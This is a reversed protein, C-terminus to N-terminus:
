RGLVTGWMAQPSPPPDGLAPPPCPVVKRWPLSWHHCQGGGRSLAESGAARWRMWCEIKWLKWGPIDMAKQGSLISICDVADQNAQMKELAQKCDNMHKGMAKQFLGALHSKVSEALPLFSRPQGLKNSKIEELKTLHRRIHHVVSLCQGCTPRGHRQGWGTPLVRTSVDWKDKFSCRWSQWQDGFDSLNQRLYARTSKSFKGYEDIQGDNLGSCFVDVTLTPAASEFRSLLSTPPLEQFTHLGGAISPRHLSSFPHMIQRINGIDCSLPVDQVNSASQVLGVLGVNTPYRFSGASTATSGFVGSKAFDNSM